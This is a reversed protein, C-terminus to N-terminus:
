TYKRSTKTRLDSIKMLHKTKDTENAKTSIECVSFAPRSNKLTIASRPGRIQTTASAKKIVDLCVAGEPIVSELREIEETMRQEDYEMEYLREKGAKVGELLNERLPKIMNVQTVLNNKEYPNETKKLNTLIDRLENETTKLEETQAQIAELLNIREKGLKELRIKLRALRELYEPRPGIVISSVESGSSVIEPVEVGLTAKISSNVIRGEHHTLVLKGETEIDCDVIENEIVVDGNAKIRSDRAFRATLKGGTQVTAGMVGGTIAVDGESIVESGPELEKALLGKSHVHFDSLITGQVQVVDGDIVMVELVEFTEEEPRNFIGTKDAVCLLGEEELRVGHGKKLRLLRVKPPKIKRGRVDVGPKGRDAPILRALHTGPEVVPVPGKDKFDVHGDKKISGIRQVSLEALLRIEADRGPQPLTGRAVIVDTIDEGKALTELAKQLRSVDLGHKVGADRIIQTVAKRIEVLNNELTAKGSLRATLGNDRIVLSYKPKVSPSDQSPTKQNERPPASSM